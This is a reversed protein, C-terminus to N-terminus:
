RGVSFLILFNCSSPRNKNRVPYVGEGRNCGTSEILKGCRDGQKRLEQGPIRRTSIAVARLLAGIFQVILSEILGERSGIGDIERYQM